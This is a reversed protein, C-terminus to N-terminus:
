HEALAQKLKAEGDKGQAWEDSDQWQECPCIHRENVHHQAATERIVEDSVM